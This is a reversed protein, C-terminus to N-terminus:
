VVDRSTHSMYGNPGEMIPRGRKRLLVSTPCSKAVLIFLGTALPLINKIPKRVHEPLFWKKHWSDSSYAIWDILYLITIAERLGGPRHFGSKSSTGPLCAELWKKCKPVVKPTLKPLQPGSKSCKPSVKRSFIWVPAGFTGVPADGGKRVWRKPCRKPSKKHDNKTKSEFFPTRLVSADKQQLEPDNQATELHPAHAIRVRRRLGFVSKSKRM